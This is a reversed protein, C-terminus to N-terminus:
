IENSVLEERQEKIREKNPFLKRLKYNLIKRLIDTDVDRNITFEKQKLVKRRRYRKIPELQNTDLNLENEIGIDGEYFTVLFKTTNGDRIIRKFKYDIM